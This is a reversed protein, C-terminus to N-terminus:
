LSHRLIQVTKKQILKLDQHVLLLSILASILHKKKLMNQAFLNHWPMENIVRLNLRSSEDAGAYGNFVYLQSKQNLYDIVQDYLNLFNSESIPQNITGWDIDQETDEEKVIFKDKPSRGTYKGTEMRIAGSETLVGEGAELIHNYLETRSLQQLTTDKKLLNSLEISETISQIAM